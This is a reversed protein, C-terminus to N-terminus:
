IKYNIDFRRRKSMFLNQPYFYGRNRDAQRIIDLQREKKNRKAVREGITSLDEGQQRNQEEASEEHNTASFHNELNSDM